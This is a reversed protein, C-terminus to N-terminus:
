RLLLLVEEARLGDAFPIARRHLFAQCFGLADLGSNAISAVFTQGDTINCGARITRPQTQMGDLRSPASAILRSLFMREAKALPFAGACRTVERRGTTAHYTM